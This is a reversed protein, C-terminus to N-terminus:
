HRPGCARSNGAIKPWNWRRGAARAAGGARAHPRACPTAHRALSWGTLAPHEVRAAVPIAVDQHIPVRWNRATSKEFSTCQVPLHTRPLADALRDDDQIRGALAACWPEALLDRSGIESRRAMAVDVRALEADSLLPPLVAFGDDDFSAIM